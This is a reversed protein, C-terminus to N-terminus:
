GVIKRITGYEIPKSPEEQPRSLTEELVEMNVLYKAGAVVAPIKKTLIMRRLYNENMATNPDAAKFEAVAEKITRMRPLPM